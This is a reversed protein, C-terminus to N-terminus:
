TAVLRRASKTLEEAGELLQTPFGKLDAKGFKLAMYNMALAAVAAAQEADRKRQRGRLAQKAIWHKHLAFVRPDVCSILLPRGDEGIAVEELKPANILWQLGKIAAPELDGARPTISPAPKFGEHQQEPRVADVLYPDNNAARFADLTQFTPDVQQLLGLLGRVKVDQMLFSFRQRADWLFDIDTTSTLDADFLVGTRSEYAYLAHTGVVFLHKGLLGASDLRRLVRAAIDPVRGLGMARNVPRMEELRKELKTLRTRLKTRQDTYEAKIRENEPSRAGLSKAGRYLYDKGNVPKWRMNARYGKYLPPYGHRFDQDAERWVRFTQQADVLQRRQENSLEPFKM